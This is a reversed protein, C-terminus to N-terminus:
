LALTAALRRAMAPLPDIGNLWRSVTAQSVGFEEALKVQPMGGGCSELVVRAPATAAWDRVHIEAWRRASRRSGKVTVYPPLGPIKLTALFGNGPVRLATFKVQRMDKGEKQIARQGLGSVM